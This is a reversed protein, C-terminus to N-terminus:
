PIDAVGIGPITTLLQADKDKKYIDEIMENSVRAVSILVSISPM